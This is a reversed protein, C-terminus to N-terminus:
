ETSVYTVARAIAELLDIGLRGRDPIASRDVLARFQIVEAVTEGPHSSTLIFADRTGDGVVIEDILDEVISCDKGVVGVFMVWRPHIGGGASRAEFERRAPLEICDEEPLGNRESTTIASPIRYLPNEIWWEELVQCAAAQYASDSSFALVELMERILGEQEASLSAGHRIGILRGCRISFRM